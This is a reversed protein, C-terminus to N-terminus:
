IQSSLQSNVEPYQEFETTRVHPVLEYVFLSTLPCLSVNALLKLYIDYTLLINFLDEGKYIYWM